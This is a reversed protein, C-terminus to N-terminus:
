HPLLIGVMIGIAVILGFYGIVVGIDSWTLAVDDRAPYEAKFLELRAQSTTM